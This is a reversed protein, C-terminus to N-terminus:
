ISSPMILYKCMDLLIYRLSQMHYVCHLLTAIANIFPLMWKGNCEQFAFNYNEALTFLLLYFFSVSSNGFSETGYNFVLFKPLEQM